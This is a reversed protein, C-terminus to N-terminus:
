EVTISSEASVNVPINSTKVVSGLLRTGAVQVLEKLINSYKDLSLGARVEFSYEQYYSSDQIYKNSDLFGKQSKYYGEGIGQKQLRVFGSAVFPNNPDELTVLENEKYAFGSDVIEVGTITGNAVGAQSSVIANNGLVPSNSIEAISVVNGTAGSTSGTVATNSVFSVAFRKRKVNLTVNGGVVNSSSIIEGKGVSIISNASTNDVNATALSDLGIISNSTNFTNSINSVQVLLTGTNSTIDKSIVEGYVIASDSRIQRVVERLNFNGANSVTLVVAPIPVLQVLEEGAVFSSSVNSLSLTFDKRGFGAISKEIILNFPSATNNSGPNIGTLSAITGITKTESTLALSIITTLDADPLKPFGYGFDAVASLNAGSGTSTTVSLSPTSNYGSGPTTVTVSEITGNSHTNITAVASTNPSGGTFVITDTNAYLTGGDNVTISDIFGIGSNSGDLVVSLYPVNASNNGSIFDTNLFISETDTISGISFTGPNGTSVISINAAKTGTDNKVYAHFFTNPAYFANSINYVGIASNNSGVVDGYATANTYTDVICNGTAANSFTQIEDAASFSGNYLEITVINASCNSSVGRLLTNNAINGIISDVLVYSSNASVISGEFSNSSSVNSVQFVLEGVNFSGTTNANTITDIEANAVTHESILLYKTAATTNGEIVYGASVTATTNVGLVLTNSNLLSGQPSQIEVNALPQYIRELQSFDTLFTNTTNFSTTFLVKQSIIVEANTSYGYGGDILQYNVLGTASSVSSIRAKAQSGSINSIVNVIDGVQFSQGSANIIINTLSGVIKPDDAEAIGDNVLEGIQFDGSLESLFLVDIIRGRVNRRAFGEVLATAGSSSGTLTKGIFNKSKDNVDLELYIPKFWEGDSARLIDDGPLYIEVNENFLLSFLLEISRVTGKSRYLELSHKILNKTDTVTEFSIGKLYKEKFYIIFDSTTRDIDKLDFLKRSYYLTKPAVEEGDVTYSNLELWEYYAKVFAVFTQGEERYFDPFLSEILPSINQEIDAM